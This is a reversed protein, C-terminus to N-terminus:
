VETIINVKHRRVSVTEPFSSLGHDMIKVPLLIPAPISVADTMSHATSSNKYCAAM